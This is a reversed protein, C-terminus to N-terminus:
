RKAQKGLQERIFNLYGRTGSLKNHRNASQKVKRLCLRVDQRSYDNLSLTVRLSFQINGALPDNRVDAEPSMCLRDLAFLVAADTLAPEAKYAEFIAEEIALLLPLFLDDKFEVSELGTGNGYLQAIAKVAYPEGADSAGKGFSITQKGYNITVTKQDGNDKVIALLTEDM